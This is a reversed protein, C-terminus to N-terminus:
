GSPRVEAARLLRAVEVLRDLLDSAEEPRPIGSFENRRTFEKYVAVRNGSIQLRWRQLTGPLREWNSRSMLGLVREPDPASVRYHRDIEPLGLTLRTFGRPRYPSVDLWRPMILVDPCARPLTATACEYNAAGINNTRFAEGVAAQFVQVPFGRYDGDILNLAQQRQETEVPFWVHVVGQDEHYTLGRSRALAEMEGKRAGVVHKRVRGPTVKVLITMGIGAIGIALVVWPPLRTAGVMHPLADCPM